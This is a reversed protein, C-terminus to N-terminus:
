FAAPKEIPQRKKNKEPRTPHRSATGSAPLRFQRRQQYAKVGRRYILFGTYIM